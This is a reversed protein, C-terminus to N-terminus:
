TSVSRWWDVTERVGADLDYQPTWGVEDRLRRVDAVLRVPESANTPKAGMALLQKRNLVDAIEEIVTRVSVERGSAINVPGIGDSLLLEVFAASVDRVYMFDRIQEGSTCEARQGSLLSRTVYPVLRAPHEHPGFVFFVRGWATSLGHTTGYSALVTQLAHKCAGYLTAPNAPTGRESLESYNWDYEACTGAMVVRKAGHRHAARLLAISGALWDVNEASVWYEDPTTVWALHLVADPQTEAILVEAEHPRRLDARKWTVQEDAAAIERSSVAFVRVGRDRLLAVCHRGIFGRAGTVLVSKM